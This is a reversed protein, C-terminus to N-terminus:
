RFMEPPWDTRFGDRNPMKVLPLNADNITESIGIIAAEGLIFAILAYVQDPELSGPAPYPMARRVYDFLTPAYPWYSEVTRRPFESNLTGRGGILAGGRKHGGVLTEGHCDVCLQAYLAAGDDYTGTGKPLGRGDGMVDVDLASIQEQPTLTGLGYRGPTFGQALAPGWSLTWSTLILACGVAISLPSPTVPSTSIKL